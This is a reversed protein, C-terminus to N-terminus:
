VSRESSLSAELESIARRARSEAPIVASWHCQGLTNKDVDLPGCHQEALEGLRNAAAKLADLAERMVGDMKEMKAVARDRDTMQVLLAIIQTDKEDVTALLRNAMENAKMEAMSSPRHVGMGRLHRRCEEVGDRSYPQVSM